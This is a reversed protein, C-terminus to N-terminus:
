LSPGKKLESKNIIETSKVSEPSNIPEANNIPELSNELTFTSGTEPNFDREAKGQLAVQKVQDFMFDLAKHDTFKQLVQQRFEQETANEKACIFAWPLVIADKILDAIDFVL